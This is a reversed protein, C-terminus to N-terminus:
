NRSHQTVTVLNLKIFISQLEVTLSCCGVAASLWSVACSLHVNPLRVICFINRDVFVEDCM